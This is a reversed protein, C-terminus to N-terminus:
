DLEERPTWELPEPRELDGVWCGVVDEFFSEEWDDSVERRVLDALYRSVSLGREEARRRITQALPEPVYLHM